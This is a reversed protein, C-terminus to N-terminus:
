SCFSLLHFSIPSNVSREDDLYYRNLHSDTVASVVVATEPDYHSFVLMHVYSDGEPCGVINTPLFM